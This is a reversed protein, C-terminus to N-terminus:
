WDITYLAKGFTNLCKDVSCAAVSYYLFKSHGYVVSFFLHLLALPVDVIIKAHLNM